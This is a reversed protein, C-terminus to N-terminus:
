GAIARVMSRFQADSLESNRLLTQVMHKFCASESEIINLIAGSNLTIRNNNDDLTMAPCAASTKNNMIQENQNSNNNGNFEGQM